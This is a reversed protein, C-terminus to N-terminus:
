LRCQLGAKLTKIALFVKVATFANGGGFTGQKDGITHFHNPEFLIQFIDEENSLLVGNKDKISRSIDSAKVCLRQITQWFV